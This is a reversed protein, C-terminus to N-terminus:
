MCHLWPSSLVLCPGPCKHPDTRTARDVEHFLHMHNWRTIPRPKIRAASQRLACSNLHAGTGRNAGLKGRIAALGAIAAKTLCLDASLPHKHCLALVLMQKADERTPKGRRILIAEAGRAIRYPPLTKDLYVRPHEPYDEMVERGSLASNKM